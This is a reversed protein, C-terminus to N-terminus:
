GDATGKRALFSLFLRREDPNQKATIDFTEGTRLWVARDTTLVEATARSRRVTIEYPQVGSLKQALVEERGNIPRFRAACVHFYEGDAPWAGETNGAGDDITTRRQFGVRERLQGAHTIAM